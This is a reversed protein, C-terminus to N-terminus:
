QNYTIGQSIEDMEPRMEWFSSTPVGIVIIGMRDKNVEYIEYTTYPVNGIRRAGIFGISNPIHINPLTKDAPAHNLSLIYRGYLLANSADDLERFEIDERNPMKLYDCYMETGILKGNQFLSGYRDLRTLDFMTISIVSFTGPANGGSNRRMNITFPSASPMSSPSGHVINFHNPWTQPLKFSLRIESIMIKNDYSNAVGTSTNNGAHENGVLHLSRIIARFEPEVQPFVEETASLIFEAFVGNNILHVVFVKMVLDHRPSYQTLYGM